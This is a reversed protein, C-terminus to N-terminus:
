MWRLSAARSVCIRSLGQGIAFRVCRRLADKMYMIRFSISIFFLVVSCAFMDMSFCFVFVGQSLRNHYGEPVHQRKGLKSDLRNLAKLHGDLEKSIDRLVETVQERGQRQHHMHFSPIAFMVFM